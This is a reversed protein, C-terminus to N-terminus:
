TPSMILFILTIEPPLTYLMINCALAAVRLSSVYKMKHSIYHLIQFNYQEFNGRPPLPVIALALDQSNCKVNKYSIPSSHEVDLLEFLIYSLFTISATQILYIFFYKIYYCILSCLSTEIFNLVFQIVNM